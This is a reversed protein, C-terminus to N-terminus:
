IFYFVINENFDKIIVKYYVIGAYFRNVYYVRFFSSYWLLSGNKRYEDIFRVQEAMPVRAKHTRPM